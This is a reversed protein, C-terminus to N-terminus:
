LDVHIKTSNKFINIFGFSIFLNLTKILYANLSFDLPNKAFVGKREKREEEQRALLVLDRRRAVEQKGSRARPYSRRRRGGSERESM